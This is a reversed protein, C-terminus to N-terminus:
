PSVIEVKQRTREVEQRASDWEANLERGKAAQGGPLGGLDGHSAEGFYQIGLLLLGGISHFQSEFATVKAGTNNLEVWANLHAQFAEQFEDSCDGINVGKLDTVIEDSTDALSKELPPNGDSHAILWEHWKGLHERVIAAEGNAKVQRAAVAAQRASVLSLFVVVVFVVVAGVAWLPARRLTNTQQPCVRITRDVVAPEIEIPQSSFLSSRQHPSAEPETPAPPDPIALESSSFLGHRAPESPENEDPM